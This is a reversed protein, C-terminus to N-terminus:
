SPMGEILVGNLEVATLAPSRSPSFVDTCSPVLDLKEDDALASTKPEGANNHNESLPSSKRAQSTQTFLSVERSRDRRSFARNVGLPKLHM